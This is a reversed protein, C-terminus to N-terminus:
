GAARRRREGIAAIAEHYPRELFAQHDAGGHHHTVSGAPAQASITRVYTLAGDILALM